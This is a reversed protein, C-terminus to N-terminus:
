KQYLFYFKLINKGANLNEIFQIASKSIYIDTYGMTGNIGENYDVIQAQVEDTILADNSAYCQVSMVYGDVRFRYHTILSEDETEIISDGDIQIGQQLESPLEITSSKFILDGNFVSELYEVKLVNKDNQLNSYYEYQEKELFIHTVGFQGVNKDYSEKTYYRDAVVSNSNAYTQVGVVYGNVDIRYHTVIDGDLNEIDEVVVVNGNEDINVPQINSGNLEDVKPLVVTAVKVAFSKSLLEEIQSKHNVLYQLEEQNQLAWELFQQQQSTLSIQLKQWVVGNYRYFATDNTASIVPVISGTQASQPLQEVSSVPQGWYGASGGGDGVIRLADNKEDYVANLYDQTTFTGGKINLRGTVNNFCKKLIQQSQFYNQM